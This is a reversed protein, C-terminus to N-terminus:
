RSATGQPPRPPPFEGPPEGPIQGPPPGPPPGGRWRDMMPRTRGELERDVSALITSRVLTRVVVGLAGLLLALAVINWWVLQTRVSRRRRPTVTM